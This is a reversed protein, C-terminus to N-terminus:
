TRSNIFNNRLFYIVSGIYILIALALTLFLYQRIKLASEQEHSYQGLIENTEKSINQGYNRALFIEIDKSRKLIGDVLNFYKQILPNPTTSYNLIQGLIKKDELLKLETFKTPNAVYQFSNLMCERYFDYGDLSYFIKNKKLDIYSPNLDYLQTQLQSLDNRFKKIDSFKKQFYANIKKLSSEEDMSGKHTENVLNLLEEVSKQAKAMEQSQADLTMRARLLSSNLQLDAHKLDSIDITNQGYDFSISHIIMYIAMLLAFVALLSSSIILKFKM